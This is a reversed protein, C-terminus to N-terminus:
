RRRLLLDGLPFCALQPRSSRNKKDGGAPFYIVWPSALQSYPRSSRNKKDGGALVYIVWSLLPTSRWSATVWVPKSRSAAEVLHVPLYRGGRFLFSSTSRWSATVWVPEFSRSAAEVLHVPLYRGEELFVWLSSAEVLHM